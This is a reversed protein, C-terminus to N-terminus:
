IDFLSFVVLVPRVRLNPKKIAPFHRYKQSFYESECVFCEVGHWSFFFYLSFM